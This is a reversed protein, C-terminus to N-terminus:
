EFSMCIFVNFIISGPIAKYLQLYSSQHYSQLDYRIDKMLKHGYHM